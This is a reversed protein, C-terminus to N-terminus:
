ELQLHGDQGGLCLRLLDRHNARVSSLVGVQEFTQLVEMEVLPDHLEHGDDVVHKGLSVLSVKYNKSVEHKRILLFSLM